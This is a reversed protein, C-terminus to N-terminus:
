QNTSTSEIMASSHGTDSNIKSNLAPSNIGIVTLWVIAVVVYFIERKSGKASM